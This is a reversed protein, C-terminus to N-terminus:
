SVKVSVGQRAIASYHQERTQWWGEHSSKERELSKRLERTRDDMSQLATKFDDSRLYRYIEQTKEQKREESLEAAALEVIVQRLIGVVHHALEPSVVTVGDVTCLGSQRPPLARTVLMGYRTGHLEMARKLQRVFSSQWTTTRKCEYVIKGCPTGREIVTHIVDGGRGRHEIDDLRFQQRLVAELEEEGDPGHHLRDRAAARHQLEEFKRRWMEADRHHRQDARERETQLRRLENGYRAELKQAVTKELQKKEQAAAKARDALAGKTRQLEAELQHVKKSAKAEAQKAAIAAAKELRSHEEDLEQRQEKLRQEVKALERRRGEDIHLVSEYKERTLPSNCLPCRHDDTSAM